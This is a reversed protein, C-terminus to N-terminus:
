KDVEALLAEVFPIMAEFVKADAPSALTKAVYTQEYAAKYDLNESACPKDLLADIEGQGSPTKMINRFTQIEEEMQHELKQIALDVEENSPLQTGFGKPKRKTKM